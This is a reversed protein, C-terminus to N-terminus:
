QSETDKWTFMEEIFQQRGLRFIPKIIAMVAVPLSKTSTNNKLEVPFPMLTSAGLAPMKPVFITKRNTM